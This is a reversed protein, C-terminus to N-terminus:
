GADALKLGLREALPNPLYAVSQAQLSVVSRIV